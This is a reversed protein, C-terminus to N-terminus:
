VHRASDSKQGLLFPFDFVAFNLFNFFNASLSHKYQPLYYNSDFFLDKTKGILKEYKPRSATLFPQPTSLHSLDILKSHSRADDLRSKFVKQIANFNVISNKVTSRLNYHYNFRL